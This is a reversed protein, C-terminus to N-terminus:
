VIPATWLSQWTTPGVVGDVGLAKEAQYARVVKDTGPGFVGDVELNWGRDALRQQSQSVATGTSGLSCYGPFPPVGSPPAPPPVPSPTDDYPPHCFAAVVSTSRHVHMLMDDRNGEYTWISGDPEVREVMGVHDVSGDGEWDFIVLDGPRPNKDARAADRFDNLMYPVYAWGKATTQRVGPVAVNEGDTTFGAACLARSVTMACWPGDMGYWATIENHNSGAPQEGLGEKSAMFAIADQARPM